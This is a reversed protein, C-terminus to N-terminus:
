SFSLGVSSHKRQGESEQMVLNGRQGSRCTVVPWAREQKNELIVVYPSCPNAIAVWVEKREERSHAQGEFSPRTNKHDKHNIVWCPSGKLIGTATRFLPICSGLLEGQCSSLNQLELQDSHVWFKQRRSGATLLLDAWLKDAEGCEPRCAVPARYRFLLGPHLLSLQCLVSIWM